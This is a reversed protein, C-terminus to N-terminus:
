HFLLNQVAAPPSSLSGCSDALPREHLGWYMKLSAPVAIEVRFGNCATNESMAIKTNATSITNISTGDALYLVSSTAM